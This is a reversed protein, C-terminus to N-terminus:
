TQGVRGNARYPRTSRRRTRKSHSKKSSTWSATSRATKGPQRYSRRPRPPSNRGRRHQTRCALRMSRGPSSDGLPSGLLCRRNDPARRFHRSGHHRPSRHPRSSRNRRMVGRCRFSQSPTTRWRRPRGTRGTRSRRCRNCPPLRPAKTGPRRKRRSCCPPLLCCRLQSTRSPMRAPTRSCQERRNHSGKRFGRLKSGRCIGPPSKRPTWRPRHALRRSSEPRGIRTPLCRRRGFLARQNM